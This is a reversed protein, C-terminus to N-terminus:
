FLIVRVAGSLPNRGGRSLIMLVMSTYLGIYDVYPFGNRCDFNSKSWGNLWLDHQGDSIATFAHYLPILSKKLPPPSFLIYFEYKSQLFPNIRPTSQRPKSVESSFISSKVSFTLTPDPGYCPLHDLWWNKELFWFINGLSLQMCSIVTRAWFSHIQVGGKIEAIKPWDVQNATLCFILNSNQNCFHIGQPWNCINLCRM